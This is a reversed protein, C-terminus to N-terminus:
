EYRLAGVPAASAVRWAHAFVTILTLILALLSALLFTSLSLDVHMAFSQLWGHLLWGASPWALLSAWLVPRSFQALLLLLVDRRDAGLAKRIGIERTRRETAATALGLLGLSALVVALGAFTAFIQGQQLIAQYRSEIYERVFFRKITSGPRGAAGASAQWLADIQQLEEPIEVGTLRVHVWAWLPIGDPEEDDTVKEEAHHEFRWYLTPRAAHLAAELTVDPIVATIIFPPPSGAATGEGPPSRGLWNGDGDKLALPTGIAASASPLRLARRAADNIVVRYEKQASQGPPTDLQGAIPQVGYLRFANYDTEISNLSLSTGDPLQTHQFNQENLLSAESCAAERVGHIRRLGEIFGDVCRAQIVLVEDTQLRIAEHTAFRQQKFVTLSAAILGILIACQLVVLLQRVSVGGLSRTVGRLVDVPQFHSLVFAPYAGSLVGILALGGAFCGLTLPERWYEFRLHLGLWANLGPLLLESLSVALLGAIAAMLLSETLFQGILVSRSAGCAKRIGVEIARSSARATALNVYVVCGALLVLLGIALNEQLRGRAGSNWGEFLHAEDIQLLPIIPQVLGNPIGPFARVLDPQGRRVSDINAGPRLTFFTLGCLHLGGNKADEEDDHDCKALGSYSAKGSAFVGSELLSANAPPDEIVAEIRAAHEGDLVLTQGVPNARSFYKDSISRTIVIGDPRQLAQSLDGFVTRFHFIRFVGPDAWYLHESFETSGQRVTVDAPALRALEEIEPFRPRMLRALFGESQPLYFTPRDSSAIGSAALYIREHGQIWGEYSLEQRALLASLLAASLAITLAVISVFAIWPRRRLNRLASAWFSKLM